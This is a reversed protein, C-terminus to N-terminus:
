LATGALRINNFAQSIPNWRTSAPSPQNHTDPQKDEEDNVMVTDSQFSGNSKMMSKLYDEDAMCYRVYFEDQLGIEYAERQARATFCSYVDALMDVDLYSSVKNEELQRDQEDFLANAALIRHSSKRQNGEITRSELGRTCEYDNDLLFYNSSTSSNMHRILKQDKSKFTKFDEQNYWRTSWAWQPLKPIGYVKVSNCFSVTKSAQHKRKNQHNYSDSAVVNNINNSSM